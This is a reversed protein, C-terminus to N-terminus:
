IVECGPRICLVNGKLPGFWKKLDTSDQLPFPMAQRALRCWKNSSLTRKGGREGVPVDALDALNALNALDAVM